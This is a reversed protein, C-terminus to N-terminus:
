RGITMLWISIFIFVVSIIIFGAIWSHMRDLRKNIKMLENVITDDKSDQIEGMENGGIM